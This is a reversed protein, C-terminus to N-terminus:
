FYAWSMRKRSPLIVIVFPKTSAAIPRRRTNPIRAEQVQGPPSGKRPTTGQVRSASQSEM